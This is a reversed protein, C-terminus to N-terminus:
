HFLMGGPIMQKIMITSRVSVNLDFSGSKNFYGVRFSHYGEALTVTGEKELMGHLGDNDVVLKGDIYLRSGDDSDTYFSYVDEAPILLYGSYEFAFNENRRRPDFCIKPLTGDKIPVLTSFDPLSDWSGEYYAFAIGPLKSETQASSV